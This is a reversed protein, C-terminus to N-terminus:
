PKTGVAAPGDIACRFGLNPWRAGPNESERNTTRLFRAYSNYSGGRTTRQREDQLEEKTFAALRPDDDEIRPPSSGAASPAELATATSADAASDGEVKGGFAGPLTAEIKPYPAYVSATWEAVNGAMDVAGYPSAGASGKAGVPLLTKDNNALVPDFEAGWPFRRGDTGRAAKEWEAETPLRKGAWHAYASADWWTVDTVPVFEAGDAYIGEQWSPPPRWGTADIFRKYELNSVELQDIYFTPLFMVRQPQEDNEAWNDDSPSGMTFEGAPVLVMGELSAAQQTDRFAIAPHAKEFDSSGGCAVFSVLWLVSSRRPIRM